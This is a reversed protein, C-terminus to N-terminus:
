SASDEPEDIRRSTANTERDITAQERERRSRMGDLAIHSRALTAQSRLLTERARRLAEEARHDHSSYDGALRWALAELQAERADAETERADALEERQDAETERTDALADRHDAASDRADALEDRRDAARERPDDRPRAAAGAPSPDEASGADRHGGVAEV